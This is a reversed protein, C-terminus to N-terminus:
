TVVESRSQFKRLVEAIINDNTELSHKVKFAWLLLVNLNLVNLKAKPDYPVAKRFWWMGMKPHKLSQVM